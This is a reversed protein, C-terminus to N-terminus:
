EGPDCLNSHNLRIGCAGEFENQFFYWHRAVQAIILFVSQYGGHICRPRLSVLRNDCEEKVCSQSRLFETSQRALLDVQVLSISCQVDNAFLLFNAVNRQICSSSRKQFLIECCKRLAAWVEERRFFCVLREGPPSKPVQNGFISSLCLYSIDAGM